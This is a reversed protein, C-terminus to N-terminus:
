TGTSATIRAYLRQARREPAEFVPHWLPKDQDYDMVGREILEARLEDSRHFNRVSRSARYDQYIAGLADREAPTLTSDDM